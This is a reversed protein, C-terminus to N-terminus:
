FDASTSLVWTSSTKATAAASAAAATGATTTTTANATATVTGTAATTTSDPQKQLATSHSHQPPELVWLGSVVSGCVCVSGVAAPGLVGCVAAAPRPLVAVALAAM